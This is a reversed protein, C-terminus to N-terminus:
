NPPKAPAKEGSGEVSDRFTAYIPYHDSAKSTEIKGARTAQLGKYFIHDERPKILGFLASATHGTAATACGFGAASFKQIAETVDKPFLTNFDGGIVIYRYNASQQAAHAIMSDLQEMRKKRTMSSTETHVSYVLIKKNGINVEGVTVHRRRGNLWKKHPLILKKQYGISGKTLIANGINKQLLKNYVVPLYLYNLKLEKAIAQVGGEDMEQLLYIDVPTTREFIQLEFVAQEIKEAKAINFSLVTLSDRDTLLTSGAENFIFVPKDPGEYVRITACSFQAVVLVLFLKKVACM